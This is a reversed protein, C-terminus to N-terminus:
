EPDGDDDIRFSDLVVDEPLAVYEDFTWSVIAAPEIGEAVFVNESCFSVRQKGCDVVTISHENDGLSASIGYGDEGREDGRVMECFILRALYSPDDWRLGRSLVGQLLLPLAEGGWHAYLYVGLPPGGDYDDDAVFINARDGM